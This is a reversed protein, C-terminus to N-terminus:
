VRLTMKAGANDSESSRDESGVFGGAQEAAASVKLAADDVKPVRLSITATRIISRTDPLNAPVEAPQQGGQQAPPGAGAGEKNLPADGPAAPAKANGGAGSSSASDHQAGGCGALAFSAVLVSALWWRTRRISVTEERTVHRKPTRQEFRGVRGAWAANRM